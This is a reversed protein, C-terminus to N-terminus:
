KKMLFISIFVWSFLCGLEISRQATSLGFDLIWFGFNMQDVGSM